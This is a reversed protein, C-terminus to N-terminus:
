TERWHGNARDHFLRPRPAELTKGQLLMPTLQSTNAGALSATSGSTNAYASASTYANASTNASASIHIPPRPCNMRMTTGPLLFLIETWETHGSAADKGWFKAEACCVCPEELMKTWPDHCSSHFINFIWEIDKLLRFVKLHESSFTLFLRLCINFTSGWFGVVMVWVECNVFGVMASVALPWHTQSCTRWFHTSHLAITLATCGM